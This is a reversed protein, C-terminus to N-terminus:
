KMLLFNQIKLASGMRGKQGNLKLTFDRNNARSKWLKCLSTGTFFTGMSNVEKFFRMKTM